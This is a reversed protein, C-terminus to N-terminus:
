YRILGQRVAILAAATRDDVGLKGMVRALHTKITTEALGLAAGIEKNSKGEAVLELIEIERESLRPRRWRDDLRAMLEQPIQREGRLVGRVVKVIEDRSASKLVYASAGARLAEIVQDDGDFSTLAAIRAQADIKRIQRTADVGSGNPMRLDLLTLDPRLEQFLRVAETGDSAEGVVEFEGTRAFLAALGERVVAHDDAILLRAPREPKTPETM